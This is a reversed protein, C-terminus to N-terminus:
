SYSFDCVEYLRGDSDRYVASELRGGDSMTRGLLQNSQSTLYTRGFFIVTLSHTVKLKFNYSLNSIIM